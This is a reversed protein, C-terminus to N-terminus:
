VKFGAISSLEKGIEDLTRPEVIAEAAAFWANKVNGPLKEWPPLPDGTVASKGGTCRCYAEYGYKAKQM